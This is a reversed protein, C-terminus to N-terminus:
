ASAGASIEVVTEEGIMFVPPGGSSISVAHAATEQGGPAALCAQLDAVSDFFIEAMRYFPAAGSPSGTITTLKAKRAGKLKAVAMPLHDQVYEREFKEKDKPPPYLVVMKVMNMEQARKAAGRNYGRSKKPAEPDSCKEAGHQSLSKNTPM